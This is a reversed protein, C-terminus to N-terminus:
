VRRDGKSARFPEVIQGLVAPGRAGTASPLNSPRGHRSEHALVAFAIAEKADSDVDFENSSLVKTGPLKEALRRMLVPNKVGGGSAILEDIPMRPRVYRELGFAISDASFATVTAVLDVPTFSDSLLEAVMDGGYQERGCSKPPAIRLYASRMLEALLDDLVQGQEAMRGGEDFRRAGQSFQAVLADILMNGPGTDFAVVQDPEAAPPIATVNAIGGINLAVRGREADRYLMYDVYPVLPAGQGGAAMDAPRFNAAVPVGTKAAIVAPEGIQLTSAIMRGCFASPEAQHYITQGHSGILDVDDLAVNSLRCAEVVAEGFLEGLLFNLQSIKSTHTDADSAAFVARRVAAPFPIEHFAVPRVRQEFGEGSIEVLAVDIGDVSTGSILGAVLM